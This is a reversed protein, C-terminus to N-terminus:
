GISQQRGGRSPRSVIGNLWELLLTEQRNTAPVGGVLSCQRTQRRTRREAQVEVFLDSAINACAVATHFHPSAGTRHWTCLWQLTVDVATAYEAEIDTRPRGRGGEAATITQWAYAAM